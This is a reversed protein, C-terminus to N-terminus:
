NTENSEDGKYYINGVYVLGCYRCAYLQTHINDHYFSCKDGDEDYSDLRDVLDNGCLICKRKADNKVLM